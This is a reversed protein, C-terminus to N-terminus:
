AGLCWKLYKLSVPVVTEADPEYRFPELSIWGAYGADKLAKLIPKYDLTGFGPARSNPDNVHIHRAYRGFLGITKEVPRVESTMAKCDLMLGFNPHNVALVLGYASEATTCLDTCDAPLPEICITVKRTAAHDAAKRIGEQFWERTQRYDTDPGVNRSFPSGYIIASAGLDGALDIVAKLYDGTKTRVAANPSNIHMGLSPPSMLMHMAPLALGNAQAVSRIEKRKASAIDTVSEAFSISAIEIGEFGAQKAFACLEPWPKKGFVESCVCFKM